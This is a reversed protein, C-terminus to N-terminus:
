KSFPIQQPVAESFKAASIVSVIGELNCVRRHLLLRKGDLCSVFVLKERIKKLFQVYIFQIATQHDIPHRYLLQTDM